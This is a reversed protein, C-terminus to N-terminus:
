RKSKGTKVRKGGTSSRGLSIRGRGKRESRIAKRVNLVSEEPKSAKMKKGESEMKALLDLSEKKETELAVETQGFQFVYILVQRSM